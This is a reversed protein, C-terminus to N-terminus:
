SGNKRGTLISALKDLTAETKLSQTISDRALIENKNREDNARKEARLWVIILLAIVGGKSILEIIDPTM